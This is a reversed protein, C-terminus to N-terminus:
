KRTRKKQKYEEFAKKILAKQTPNIARHSRYKRVAFELEPGHLGARYFSMYRLCHNAARRVFEIPIRENLTKVLGDSGNLDKYSYSCNRRHYAKIYGWVMEIYNLECHYKPYLMFYFGAQKEVTEHLWPKQELFDPEQSLVYYLCCKDSRISLGTDPDVRANRQECGLCIKNLVHGGGSKEKGREKLITLLGKQVGDDHQMQQVVKVREVPENSGQAKYQWYWGPRQKNINAGGDSKNLASADLGDPAKARHTMSNDFLTYIDANPHLQRMLDACDEFQSNLDQNKFWGDRAKGAYFVKYSRKFTGGVTGSMFGHCACMFGSIMISQGASKPLLKKKRNEMWFLKKGDNAYFTSEDHTSLVAERCGADCKTHLGEACVKCLPGQWVGCEEGDKDYLRMRAEISVMDKLFQERDAVVDTREHGDTFWGKQAKEADFGLYRMWRTATEVCVKAPARPIERLLKENLDFMFKQPTRELDTLGRLHIRFQQKINEDTIISYIKAHKGQKYTVLRGTKLYEEMWYRMSRAKYCEAGNTGYLSRAIDASAEMKGEGNVCRQLLRLVAMAQVKQWMMLADKKDEKANRTIKAENSLLHQIAQLMTFKDGVIEEDQDDQVGGGDNMEDETDYDDDNVPKTLFATISKQGPASASQKRLLAEHKRRRVSRDSEGRQAIKRPQWKSNEDRLFRLSEAAFTEEKSEEEEHIEFVEPEDDEPDDEEPDVDSLATECNFYESVSIENGDEDVLLVEEDNQESQEMEPMMQMADVADQVAAFVNQEDQRAALLTENLEEVVNMGDGCMQDTEKEEEDANGAFQGSVSDRVQSKLREKAARRSKNTGM